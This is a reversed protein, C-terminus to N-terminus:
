ALSPIRLDLSEHSVQPPQWVTRQKKWGLEELADKLTGAELLEAFYLDVLEAFRKRAESKTAGVTSIDLAPSYAIYQSGHKTIDVKLKVSLDNKAKMRENVIYM